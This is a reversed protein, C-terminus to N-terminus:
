RVVAMMDPGLSLWTLAYAIVGTAFVSAVGSALQARRGFLTPLVSQVQRLAYSSGAALGGAALLLPAPLGAAMITGLWWVTGAGLAVAVVGAVPGGAGWRLGLDALSAVAVAGFVAVSCAVGEDTPTLLLVCAGSTLVGIGTVSASVSEVLRPRGDRRGLQHLFEVIMALAVAGPLLSTRAEMSLVGGGLLILGAGALVGTTGRPSPLGLLLVWGGALLLMGIGVVVFVPVTGLLFAVALVAAGVGASATVLPRWPRRPIMLSETSSEDDADSRKPPVALM